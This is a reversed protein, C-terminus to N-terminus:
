SNLLMLLLILMYYADIFTVKCSFTESQGRQWLYWRLKCFTLIFALSHLFARQFISVSILFLFLQNIIGRKNRTKPLEQFGVRDWKRDRELCSMEIIIRVTGKVSRVAENAYFAAKMMQKNLKYM